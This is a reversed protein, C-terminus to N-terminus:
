TKALLLDLVWCGRFHPGPTRLHALIAQDGCGAEELADALVALLSPDLTGEPLCRSSYAEQALHIVLGNSWALWASMIFTLEFPNGFLERLLGAQWNDIGLQKMRTPSSAQAMEVGKQSICAGGVLYAWDEVCTVACTKGADSQCNWDAASWAARYAKRLEKRTALRDAFREAVEVASRSREDTAWPWLRRSCACAFLRRRRECPRDKLFGLMKVPDACTLWTAEDM